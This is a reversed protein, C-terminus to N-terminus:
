SVGPIKSYLWKILKYTGIYFEVLLLVGLIGLLAITTQPLIEYVVAIYSGAASIASAIAATPLINGIALLGALMLLLTAAIFPLYLLITTM